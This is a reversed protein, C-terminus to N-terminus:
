KQLHLILYDKMKNKITRLERNEPNWSCFDAQMKVTESFKLLFYAYLYCPLLHLARTSDFHDWLLSMAGHCGPWCLHNKLFAFLFLQLGKRKLNCWSCCIRNLNISYLQCVHVSGCVLNLIKKNAAYSEVDNCCSHRWKVLGWQYLKSEISSKMTGAAKSVYSTKYDWM